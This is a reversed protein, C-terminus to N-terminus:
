FKYLGENLFKKMAASVTPSDERYTVGYWIADSSLMKIKKGEEEIRDNLITPLLFEKKPENINVKLFDVFKKELYGFVDPQLGWMNMSVITDMPYESNKDLGDTETIHTLYGNETECIGRTVTGNDTITNGLKYGVMCMEDSSTLHKHLVDYSEYGYYDDANVVAFPSDIVNEAALVAQGTGWPKLRGDPLTFGEPLNDKEQFAYEVDIMKEIRRGVAARFDKEIEKKIVFCVKDFGAKKADYVSFDLIIEGNPGLPEIQKLGGFRSGMGAAMILLETKM